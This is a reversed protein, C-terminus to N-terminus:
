MVKQIDLVKYTMMGADTEVSVEDGVKHGMLAKGVPSEEM